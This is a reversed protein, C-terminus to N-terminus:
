LYQIKSCVIKETEFYVSGWALGTGYGCALIKQSKTRMDNACESVIALPISASTTNGFNKLGLPVKDMPVKLRKAINSMILKNAQHLVLKDIEEVNIDFEACLKKMSKPAKTIAFGFVDMSDMKEGDEDLTLKGARRDLVKKLSEITYPNRFGGQLHTIARGDKSNTGINFKISPAGEEFELATVTGADGFLPREERNNASQEKSATDGAMLLARKVGGNQMMSLVSSLGVVWGPCGHYYDICMTNEGLDLMDHCVFSNPQNLYDPNQTVFALLDISDKEWGLDKILEEAAKACLDAATMGDPVIHRREIGTAAIIPEAEGPAYFPLDKNEEVCEPVCASFGKIAVNHTEIFAM